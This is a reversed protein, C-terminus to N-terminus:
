AGAQNGSRQQRQFGHDYGRGIFAAPRSAIRDTALWLRKMHRKEDEADHDVYETRSHFIVYNNVFQMDGPQLDMDLRFERSVTLADLADLAERELATLRPLEAFRQASDIYGRVYRNFLRGDHRTFVPMTYYPLAGAPQEERWDIYFEEYLRALLDPRTRALANHCAVSSVISSVGGQRATRLCMLGVFDSGDTHFPLHVRTQYGRVDTDMISRGTDRVDGLLDGRANQPWPSGLYTGIGWFITGADEKSYDRAPFGRLLAFGRGNILTDLVQELRGALRPLPFDERTLATGTLGRSKAYHLAADLEAVDAGTLQDIWDEGQEFDAAQWDAPSNLQTAKQM